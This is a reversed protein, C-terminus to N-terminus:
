KGALLAMQEAHIAESRANLEEPTIKMYKLVESCVPSWNEPSPSFPPSAPNCPNGGNAIEVDDYWGDCDSDCFIEGGAIFQICNSTCGFPTAVQIVKPYPPKVVPVPELCDAVGDGDSDTDPVGCGCAGPALKASDYPCFDYVYTAPVNAGVGETLVGTTGVNMQLQGPSGSIGLVGDSRYDLGGDSRVRYTDQGIGTFQYSTGDVDAVLSMTYGIVVADDLIEVSTVTSTGTLGGVTATASYGSAVPTGDDALPLGSHGFTQPPASRSGHGTYLLAGNLSIQADDVLMGSYIGEPIPGTPEAVPQVVTAPSGCGQGSCLSAVLALVVFALIRNM